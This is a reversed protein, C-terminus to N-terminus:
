RKLIYVNVSIDNQKEFKSIDKLKVPFDIGNFNLENEYRKYSSSRLSNNGVDNLCALIAYKFYKENVNKVNVCSKKRKIVEPFNIGCGARM